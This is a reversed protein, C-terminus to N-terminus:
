LLGAETKFQRGGALEAFGARLKAPDVELPSSKPANVLKQVPVLARAVVDALVCMGTDVAFGATAHKVREWDVSGDDNTAQVLMDEVVPGFQRNLSRVSASTCDVVNKATERSESRLWSCSVLLMTTIVLLFRIV